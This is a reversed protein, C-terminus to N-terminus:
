RHRPVSDTTPEKVVERAVGRVTEKVKDTMVVDMQVERTRNKRLTTKIEILYKKLILKM